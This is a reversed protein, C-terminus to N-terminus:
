CEVDMSSSGIAEVTLTDVVRELLIAAAFLFLDGETCGPWHAGIEPLDDGCTCTGAASHKWDEVLYTLITTLDATATYHTGDCEHHRLPFRM